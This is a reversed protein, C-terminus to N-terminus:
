KDISYIHYGYPAIEEPNQEDFSSQWGDDIAITKAEGDHNLVFLYRKEDTQRETRELGRLGGDPMNLGNSAMLEEILRDYLRDDLESGVYVAKGKGYSNVTVAATGSYFDSAYTALTRCSDADVSVLDAWLRGEGRVDDWLISVSDKLLPDYEPISIGLLDALLGPLAGASYNINNRHKVGARMDLVLTGGNAVYSRYKDALEPWMLYQLPAVVLAYDAIEAHDGIIDLQIQKRYFANYIKQFHAQYNLDPNNPQIGIAHKQEYSFIMAAQPKPMSGHIDGLLGKTKAILEKLEEYNRGPIGSHPLIGHWYQETGIAAVRWRFYVIADAGRAVAQMSWLALQGPKPLRGMVNWGTIGSQQEMIWFPAQKTGRIMDLEAAMLAPINDVTGRFFGSPYQDHSAFDLQEGLEYYNVTDAFGMMNHTIFRDGSHERIIDYQLRHFDLIVDSHFRRWDLVQSPNHATVLWKPTDVQDFANYDQSWFATGWNANLEEITGYRKELWAQFAKTCSPCHCLDHHSNGLENDIQWGVVNPHDGYKKAFTTVYSRIAERLTENTQCAHHRGGFASRKGESNMPLITPDKAILWAPPAASPTGLIVKIGATQLRDIVDDLWAFNFRGEDTELLSWSFEALRVVDLGMEKMLRIDTDWREVPWHEPYYDVGYFLSM